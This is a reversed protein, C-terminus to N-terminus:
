AADALIAKQAELHRRLSVVVGDSSEEDPDTIPQLDVDYAEALRPTHAIVLDFLPVLEDLSIKVDNGSDSFAKLADLDTILRDVIDATLAGTRGAEVYDRLSSEFDAVSEPRSEAALRVAKARKKTVLFTAAGGVAVTAAVVPVAIKPNLRRAAQEVQQSSPVASKLHKVIRGTDAERVTGGFLKLAGTVLGLEIEPPIILVPQTYM